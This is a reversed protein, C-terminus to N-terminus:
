GTGPVVQIEANASINSSSIFSSTGKSSYIGSNNYQSDKIFLFSLGQVNQDVSIQDLTNNLLVSNYSWSLVPQFLNNLTETAVYYGIGRGTQVSASILNSTFM